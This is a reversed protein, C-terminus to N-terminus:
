TTITSVDHRIQGFNQVSTVLTALLQERDCQIHDSTLNDDPSHEASNAEVLLCTTHRPTVGSRSGRGLNDHCIVLHGSCATQIEESMRTKTGPTTGGLRKCGQSKVASPGLVPGVHHLADLYFAVLCQNFVTSCLKEKSHRGPDCSLSACASLMLVTCPASSLM